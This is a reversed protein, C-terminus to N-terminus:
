QQPMKVSAKQQILREKMSDKHLKNFLPLSNGNKKNLYFLM